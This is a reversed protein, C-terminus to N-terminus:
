AFWPSAFGAAGSAAGFTSTGGAIIDGMRASADESAGILASRLRPFAGPAFGALGGDADVLAQAGLLLRALGHL